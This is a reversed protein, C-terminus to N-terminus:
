PQQIREWLWFTAVVIVLASIVRAGHRAFWPWRNLTLLLPLVIAAVVLQGIEVGVNFGLLPTAIAMDTGGLGSARLASAFGFGHILGFSCTLAYRHWAQDTRRFNEAAVFIISAAIAPEVLRPSLNVLNLAALTLTVSHAVTFGTIVLLMPKLQRCGLLLALLFLLHDFAEVNLIHGVGLKLFETFSPAPNTATAAVSNKEPPLNTAPGRVGAREGLPPSPSQLTPTPLLFEAAEKGPALIASGLINGNEDTLVLSATRSGNLAPLFKSELRLTKAPALPYDFHFEYEVGDTIVEGARPQLINGDASAAFFNTVVEPNLALPHGNPLQGPTLQAARLFKEALATGVTVSVEAADAHIIARSSADFPSHAQATQALLFIALGATSFPTRWNM